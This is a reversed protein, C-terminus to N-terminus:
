QQSIVYANHIYKYPYVFVGLEQQTELECAIKRYVVLLFFNYNENIKCRVRGCYYPVFEHTKEVLLRYYNCKENIHDFTMAM